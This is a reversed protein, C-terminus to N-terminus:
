KLSVMANTFGTSGNQLVQTSQILGTNTTFLTQDDSAKNTSNIRSNADWRNIVNRFLQSASTIPNETGNTVNSNTINLKPGVGQMIVSDVLNALNIAQEGNLTDQNDIQENTQEIVDTAIIGATVVINVTRNVVAQRNAARCIYVNRGEELDKGLVTLEFPKPNGISLDIETKDNKIRFWNVLPIPNGYAACQFNRDQKDDESQTFFQDREPNYIEPKTETLLIFNTSLNACTDIIYIFLNLLGEVLQFTITEWPSPGRRTNATVNVTFDVTHWLNKLLFYNVDGITTNTWSFNGSLQPIQTNTDTFTTTLTYSMIEANQSIYPM